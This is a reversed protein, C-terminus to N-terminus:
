QHQTSKDVAIEDKQRGQLPSIVVSRLRICCIFLTSGIISFHTKLDTAM